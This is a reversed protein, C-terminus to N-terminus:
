LSFWRWSLFTKWDYSAMMAALEPSPFVRSRSRLARVFFPLALTYYNGKERGGLWEKSM